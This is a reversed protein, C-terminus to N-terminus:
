VCVECQKFRRKFTEKVEQSETKSASTSPIPYDPDIKVPNGDEDKRKAVVLKIVARMASIIDFFSLPLTVTSSINDETALAIADDVTPRTYVITDILCEESLKGAAASAKFVNM